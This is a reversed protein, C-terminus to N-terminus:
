FENIALRVYATTKDKVNKFSKLDVRKLYQNDISERLGYSYVVEPLTQSGIYPTGTYNYCGVVNTGAEMLNIALQNITKRLSTATDKLGFDVALKSGFVHHAEDVYIGLQEMRMLKAFRQNMLLDAENDM